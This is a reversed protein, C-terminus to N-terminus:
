HLPLSFPQEICVNDLVFNNKQSLLDMLVHRDQNTVHVFDNKSWGLVMEVLLQVNLNM